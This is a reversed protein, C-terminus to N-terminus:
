NMSSKLTLWPFFVKLSAEEQAPVVNRVVAGSEKSSRQHQGSLRVELIGIYRKKIILLKRGTVGLGDRDVVHADVELVLVLEVPIKDESGANAKFM